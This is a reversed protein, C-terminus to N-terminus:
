DYPQVNTNNTIREPPVITWSENASAPKIVPAEYPNFDSNRYPNAAKDYPEAYMCYANVDSPVITLYENTSVPKMEPAKDYPEAYMGNSNVDSPVITLYENTSVPKMEPAKDYPEAYMGHANVDLPVITLYENTSVPKIEPAEYPNFDFNRYPNTAKDYPEAYMGNANVDSPLIILYEHTSVPKMEPAEYPNFDINRYPNTAKDYPEAYLGNVNVDPPVLTLYENTSVPKMKQAEWSHVDSNRNQNPAKNYPEAYMDNSTLHFPVVNLYKNTSVPKIKHAEFLNVDSNRYRNAARTSNYGNTDNQIEKKFYTNRKGIKYHIGVICVLSAILVIGAVVIGVITGVSVAVSNSSNTSTVNLTIRPEFYTTDTWNLCNSMECQYKKNRIARFYLTENTLVISNDQSWRVTTPFISTNNNYCTCRSSSNEKIEDNKPCDDALFARPYDIKFPTTYPSIFEVATNNMPTIQLRLRHTGPGLHAALVNFTLTMKYYGTTDLKKRDINFRSPMLREKTTNAKISHNFDTGYKYTPIVCTVQIECNDIAAVNGCQPIEDYLRLEETTINKVCQSEYWVVCTCTVVTPTNTVNLKLIVNDVNKVETEISGCTLSINKSYPYGGRSQCM